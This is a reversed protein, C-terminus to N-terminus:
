TSRLPRDEQFWALCNRLVTPDQAADIHGFGPHLTVRVREAVAPYTERLAAQFRLAGDPPVHTDDAGCEFTIAPGHSYADLHTLPDLQDYLWQAYADAQGQPLVRSPDTLDTMGPRTWDPTAVIAAVRSIRKDVGTLAVAVDGGMSVGGAVVEPGTDLTAMAWDVVRLSDLTTQGLIPWMHRRFNGFVRQAIQEDSETGRQGHQWPDLSVAVFGASALEQLFPLVDEKTRTLPPLWLALPAAPRRPAPQVWIVPIHDVL